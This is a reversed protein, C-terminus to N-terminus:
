SCLSMSSAWSRRSSHPCCSVRWSRIGQVAQLAVKLPLVREPMGPEFRRCVLMVFRKRAVEADEM